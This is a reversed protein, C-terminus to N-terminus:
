IQKSRRNVMNLYIVHYIHNIVLLGIINALLSLMFEAYVKKKKIAEAPTMVEYYLQRREVHLYKAWTRCREDPPLRTEVADQILFTNKQL